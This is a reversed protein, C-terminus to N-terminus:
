SNWLMGETLFKQPKGQYQSM